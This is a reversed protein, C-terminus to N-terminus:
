KSYYEMISPEASIMGKPLEPFLIEGASEMAWKIIPVYKEAVEERVRLILEDHICAILWAESSDLERHLLLESLKTLDASSSQIPANKGERVARARAGNTRLMDYSWHRRRGLVSETYLQTIAKNGNTELLKGTKPFLGYWKQIWDDGMQKQMTFGVTSLPFSVRRYLGVGSVGYMISYTTTKSVNRFTLYPEEKAMKKDFPKEFLTSGVLSHIDGRQIQEILNEDNSLAALIVLEIGSFDAGVFKYGPEAIFM